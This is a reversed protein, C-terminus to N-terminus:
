NFKIQLRQLDSFLSSFSFSFWRLDRDPDGIFILDLGLVAGGLLELFTLTLDDGLTTVKIIVKHSM